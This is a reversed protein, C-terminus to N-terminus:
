GQLATIECCEEGHTVIGTGPPPSVSVAQAPDASSSKVPILSIRRPTPASSKSWAELTNLTIRRPQNPRGGQGGSQKREETIPTQLACKIDQLAPPSDKGASATGGPTRSHLLTGPAGLDAGRQAPSGDAARPSPSAVRNALVKKVKKEVITPSQMKFVPKEKLPTGLEDKEFTVFSCYGDTSSIALFSGDKSWSIDSLTHYHINSIYGFPFSQQTDYLIVSDESAVAFVLRYPLDILLTSKQSSEGKNVPPRLEFFIPCCRVALSAKAPCLLHAIPRKLNKRSFIYTTNTVNEGSEICGAPTLLLSGDPTFTPRRFFSKMSDDHFMRYTKATKKGKNVDWMIATNDVSGSVMYSGDTTWCIDFVDEIHGSIRVTSDVGASALRNIKGEVNHQFDLSYVPEKNHWAIECTIVKM